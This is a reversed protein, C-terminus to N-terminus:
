WLRCRRGAVFKEYVEGHCRLSVDYTSAIGYSFAIAAKDLIEQRGLQCFMCELMHTIFNFPM